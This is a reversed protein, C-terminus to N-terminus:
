AAVAVLDQRRKVVYGPHKAVQAQFGQELNEIDGGILSKNGDEVIVICNSPRGIFQRHVMLEINKSGDKVLTCDICVLIKEM